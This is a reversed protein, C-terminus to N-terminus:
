ASPNVAIIIGCIVDNGDGATQTVKVSNDGADSFAWTGVSAWSTNLFTLLAAPTSYGTGTGATLQTGNFSAAAYYRSNGVLTPLAFTAFYKGNVDYECMTQCPAIFPTDMPLLRPTAACCEADAAAEIYGHTAPSGNDTGTTKGRVYWSDNGLRSVLRFVHFSQTTPGTTDTAACPIYNFGSVVNDTIPEAWYDGDITVGAGPTPIAMIIGAALTDTNMFVENNHKIVLAPIFTAAM